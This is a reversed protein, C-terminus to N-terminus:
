EIEHYTIKEVKNEPGLKCLAALFVVKCKTYDRSEAYYSALLRLKSLKQKGIVELPETGPLLSERAKVEIIFLYDKKKAIIDAEAFPPLKFNRELIAYGQQMLHQSVREEAMNGKHIHNPFTSKGAQLKKLFSLRHLSCLGHNEIARYHDKTGYGKHREFGYNPYKKSAEIMYRDRATKALISAAAISNSVADGKTLSKQPLRIDDLVVADVLLYDPGISLESVASSMALKTAELINVQDIIEPEVFAIQYALAKDKIEAELWLRKKESLKKSDNLGYIPAKDDLICAAAVVPGALPGRGAEDVGAIKEFGDQGLSKEYFSLESYREYDKKGLRPKYPSNDLTTM